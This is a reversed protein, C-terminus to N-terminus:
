SRLDGSGEGYVYHCGESDAYEPSPQRISPADATHYGYGSQQHAQPQEQGAHGVGQPLDVEEITQDRADAQPASRARQRGYHEPPERPPRTHGDADDVGADTACGCDQRDNSFTQDGIVSPTERKLTQTKEYPTHEDYPNHQEPLM